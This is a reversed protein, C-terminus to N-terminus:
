TTLLVISKCKLFQIKVTHNVELSKKIMPKQLAKAKSATAKPSKAPSDETTKSRKNLPNYAELLLNLASYPNFGEIKPNNGVLERIM